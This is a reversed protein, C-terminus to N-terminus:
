AGGDPRRAPVAVHDGPPVGPLGSRGPHRGPLLRREHTGGGNQRDVQFPLQRMQELREQVLNKATTEFRVVTSARGGLILMPLIAASVLGLLTIAVLVEILSFGEDRRLRSRASSV